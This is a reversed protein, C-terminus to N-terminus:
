PTALNWPNTWNPGDTSNYFAVLALSDRETDCQSYSYFSYFSFLIISFVTRPFDFM